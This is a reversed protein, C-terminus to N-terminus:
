AGPGGIFAIQQGDPSISFWSALHYAGTTPTTVSQPDVRTESGDSFRIRIDLDPSEYGSAYAIVPRPAAKADVVSVGFLLSAVCGISAALRLTKPARM